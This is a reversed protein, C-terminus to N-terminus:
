RIRPPSAPVLDLVTVEPRVGLRLPLTDEVGIGPTVYARMAGVEYLGRAYRRGLRGIALLAGYGPLAFQGGHTDGCLYLDVGRAAAQELYDNAHYTFVKLAEPPVAGLIAEPEWADLWGHGGFEIPGGATSVSRWGELAEFGTGGFLDLEHWFWADWNGRVALKATKARMASLAARFQPLREEVNLADGAFIVVDADQANVAEAVRGDVDFRPDSHLDSILVLRVPASIKATAIEVREVRIWSTEVYRAYPLAAVLLANLGLVGVAFWRQDALGNGATARLRRMAARWLVRLGAGALLALGGVVLVMVFSDLPEIHIRRHVRVEFRASVAAVAVLAAIWVGMRLAASRAPLRPPARQM